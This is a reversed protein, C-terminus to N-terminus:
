TQTLKAHLVMTIEMSIQVMGTLSFKTGRVHPLAQWAVHERLEQSALLVGDM